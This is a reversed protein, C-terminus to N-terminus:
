SIGKLINNWNFVVMPVWSIFLILSSDSGGEMMAYNAGILVGLTFVVIM